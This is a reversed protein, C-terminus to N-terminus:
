YVFDEIPYEKKRLPNKAHLKMIVLNVGSCVKAFGYVYNGLSNSCGHIPKVSRERLNSSHAWFSITMSGSKWLFVIIPKSACNRNIFLISINRTIVDKFANSPTSQPCLYDNIWIGEFILSIKIKCDTLVKSGHYINTGSNEFANLTCFWAISAVKCESIRELRNLRGGLLDRLTAPEKM